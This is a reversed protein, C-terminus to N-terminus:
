RRASPGGSAGTRAVATEMPPTSPEPLPGSGENNMHQILLERLVRENNVANRYDKEAAEVRMRADDLAERARAWEEAAKEYPYMERSPGAPETFSNDTM